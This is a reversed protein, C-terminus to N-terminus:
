RRVEVDASVIPQECEMCFDFASPWYSEVLEGNVVVPNIADVTASHGSPCVTHAIVEPRIRHVSATM